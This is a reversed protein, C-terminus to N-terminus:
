LVYVVNELLRGNREEYLKNFVLLSSLWECAIMQSPSYESETTKLVPLGRPVPFSSLVLLLLLSRCCLAFVQGPIEDLFCSWVPSFVRSRM